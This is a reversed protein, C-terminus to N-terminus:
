RLFSKSVTNLQRRGQDNEENLLAEELMTVRKCKEKYLVESFM